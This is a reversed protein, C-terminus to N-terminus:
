TFALDFLKNVQSPKAVVFRYEVARAWFPSCDSWASATTRVALRTAIRQPIPIMSNRMAKARGRNDRYM